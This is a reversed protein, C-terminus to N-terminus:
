GLRTSDLRPTAAPDFLGQLRCLEQFPGSSRGALEQWTGSQVVRGADM